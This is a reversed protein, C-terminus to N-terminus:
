DAQVSVWKGACRFWLCEAGFNNVYINNKKYVNEQFEAFRRGLSHLRKPKTDKKEHKQIIAEIKRIAGSTTKELHM